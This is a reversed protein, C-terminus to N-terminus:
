VRSKDPLEPEPPPLELHESELGARESAPAQQNQAPRGRVLVTVTERETTVKVRRNMAPEAFFEKSNAEESPAGRRLINM